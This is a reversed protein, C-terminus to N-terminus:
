EPFHPSRPQVRSVGLVKLIVRRREVTVDLVCEQFLEGAEFPFAPHGVLRIRIDVDVHASRRGQFMPFPVAKGIFYLGQLLHAPDQVQERYFHVLYGTGNSLYCLSAADYDRQEAHPCQDVSFKGVDLAEIPFMLAKSIAKSEKTDASATHSATSQSLM